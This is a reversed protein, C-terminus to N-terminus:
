SSVGSSASCKPTCPLPPANILLTPVAIDKLFYRSSCATYYQEASEFGHAPATYLEDFERVSKCNKLAQPPIRGPFHRIKESLRRKMSKLFRRSFLFNRRHELAGSCRNLDFPTSIAAAKRVLTNEKKEGLYKLVINGGLSFGTLFVEEYASVRDSTLILDLDGTNGSHYSRFLRNARVGGRHDPVLIDYGAHFLLRSLSKIYTKTADSELGPVIVALKSAPRRKWNLWLEDGDPTKLRGSETEFAPAKRFLAPIITEVYGNTAWRPPHYDDYLSRSNM